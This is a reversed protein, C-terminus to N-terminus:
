VEQNPPPPIPAWHSAKNFCVPKADGISFFQSVCVVGDGYVLVLDSMLMPEIPHKDSKTLEPFRDEVSIWEMM